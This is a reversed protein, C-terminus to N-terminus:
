RRVVCVTRVVGTENWSVQTVVIQLLNTWAIHGMKGVWACFRPATWKVDEGYLSDKSSFKRSLSPSTFLFLPLSLFFSWPFSLPFSCPIFFTGFFIYWYQFRLFWWSCWARYHRIKNRNFFIETLREIHFLLEFNSM